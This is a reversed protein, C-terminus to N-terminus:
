RAAQPGCRTRAVTDLLAMGEAGLLTTAQRQAAAWAPAAAEILRAGHATLRFPQTRADADPVVELWGHARMRDVNRSLTSLSLDLRACVQAPRAIRAATPSSTLASRSASRAARITIRPANKAPSRRRLDQRHHRHDPGHTAQGAHAEQGTGTGLCYNYATSLTLSVRRVAFAEALWRQASPARRGTICCDLPVPPKVCEPADYAPNNMRAGPLRDDHRSYPTLLTQLPEVDRM